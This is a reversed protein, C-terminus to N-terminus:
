AKMIKRDEAFKRRFCVIEQMWNHGLRPLLPNVLWCADM